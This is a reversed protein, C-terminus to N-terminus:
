RSTESTVFTVEQYTKVIQTSRGWVLLYLWPEGWSAPFFLKRQRRQFSLPKTELFKSSIAQFKKTGTQSAQVARHNQSGAFPPLSRQCPRLLRLPVWTCRFEVPRRLIRKRYTIAKKLIQLRWWDVMTEPSEVQPCRARYWIPNVPIGIKLTFLLQAVPDEARKM